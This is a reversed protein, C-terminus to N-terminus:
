ARMKTYNANNAVLSLMKIATAEQIKQGYPALDGNKYANLKRIELPDKKLFAAIKEIVSEIVYIGQPGGFGRFATNPPLNTICARGRIRVDPIYYINDAHFMARELIAVSLDAYAGGNCLLEVDWANIRGNKDFGVKWNSLFPHRKGTARMDEHRSLLVQVPRQTLYAGLAAMAGWITASREKGGFAGGLRPVEVAIRHAPIGLVHATVEQVEMTSQTACLLHILDHDEPIARVRQSEMYFHEQGGSFSSGTLVHESHQLAKHVDGCEIKREPIYWAKQKDAEEIELVPKLKEYELKIKSVAAEAISEDEALVMALPQFYYMIETEPFLPEDKIVHGIMNEGPIDQAGIVAHVGPVAKAVSFDLMKIRAHAIPSFLFKAYLMGQLPAEDGIFRSRGSVHLKGSIHWPLKAM